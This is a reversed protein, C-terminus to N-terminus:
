GNRNEILNILVMLYLILLLPKIFFAAIKKVTIMRPKARAAATVASSFAAGLAAFGEPM